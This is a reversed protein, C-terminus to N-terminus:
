QGGTLALQGTPLSRQSARRFSPNEKSAHIEFEVDCLPGMFSPHNRVLVCWAPSFLWAGDQMTIVVEIHGSRRQVFHRFHSVADRDCATIDAHIKLTGYSRVHMSMGMYDAMDPEPLRIHCSGPWTGVVIDAVALSWRRDGFMLMVEADGSEPLSVHESTPLPPRERAEHISMAKRAAAREGPTAAPDDALARLIDTRHSM